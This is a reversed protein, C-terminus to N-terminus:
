QAQIESIRAKRVKDLELRAYKHEVYEYVNTGLSLKFYNAAKISNGKNVNYKGLYFYAECLRYNLQSQSTVGNLLASIVGGEDINGLYYDVLSSAWNDSALAVRAKSLMDMAQEESNNKAYVIYHWLLRFPDSPDLQLYASTDKVALSARGGYYLAIGRNLLAFDYQPNIELTSDFAEYALMHMGAQIYLVGLSNYAEALAPNISLAEAYDRRALSILGLSDYAVGRQFLVEAREADTFEVRYLSDTYHVISLQARTSVMEPESLLLGSMLPDTISNTSTCGSVVFLVFFFLLLRKIAM